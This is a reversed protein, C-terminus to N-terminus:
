KHGTLSQMNTPFCNGPNERATLYPMHPQTSYNLPLIGYIILDIDKNMGSFDLM